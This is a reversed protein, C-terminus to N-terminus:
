PVQIYVCVLSTIVVLSSFSVVHMRVYIDFGSTLIRLRRTRSMMSGSRSRPWTSLCLLLRVSSIETFFCPFIGHGCIAEALLERLWGLIFGGSSTEASISSFSFSFPSSSSLLFTFVVVEGVLGWVRLAGEPVWAGEEEGGEEKEEGDCVDFGAWDTSSEDLM